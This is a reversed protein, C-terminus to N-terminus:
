GPGGSRGRTSPADTAAAIIKPLSSCYRPLRSAPKKTPQTDAAAATTDRPSGAQIVPQQAFAPAAAALAALIFYRTRIM